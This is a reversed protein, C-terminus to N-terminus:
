LDSLYGILWNKMFAKQKEVEEKLDKEKPADVVLLIKVRLYRNHREEGLSVVMDGFPLVVPKAPKEEVHKKAGSDPHLLRPVLFGAGVAVLGVLVLVVLGGKGKKQAPAEKQEATAM